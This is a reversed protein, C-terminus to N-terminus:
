IITVESITSTVSIISDIAGIVQLCLSWGTSTSPDEPQTGPSPGPGPGPGTGGGGSPLADVRAKLEDVQSMMANIAGHSAMLASSIAPRIEKGYTANEITIIDDIFAM